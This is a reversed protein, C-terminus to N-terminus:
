FYPSWVMILIRLLFIIAIAKIAFRVFYIFKEIGKNIKRVKENGITKDTYIDKGYMEMSRQRREEMMKRVELEEDPEEQM